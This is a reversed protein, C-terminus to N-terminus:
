NGKSGQAVMAKTKSLRKERNTASKTELGQDVRKAM